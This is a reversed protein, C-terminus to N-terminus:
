AQFMKSHGPMYHPGFTNKLSPTVPEMDTTLHLLPLSLFSYSMRLWFNESSMDNKLVTSGRVQLVESRYCNLSQVFSKSLKVRLCPIFNLSSALHFCGFGALDLHRRCFTFMLESNTITARKQRAGVGLQPWSM